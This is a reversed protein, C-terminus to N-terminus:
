LYIPGLVIRPDPFKLLAQALDEESVVGPLDAKDPKEYTLQFHLHPTWGGNEHRDGLWAIVEGSQIPQGRKKELISAQNLHGYLAYIKSDGFEHETLLTYGYDGDASHYASDYIKGDAFSFIETGAPAFLDIGMHITRNGGFLPTQYMGKRNENYRGIGFQSNEALKADSPKSLDFIPYSAPLSIIPHFARQKSFLYM